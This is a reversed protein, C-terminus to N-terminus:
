PAKEVFSVSTPMPPRRSCTWRRTRPSGDPDRAFVLSPIEALEKEARLEQVVDRVGESRVDLLIARPRLARALRSLQVLARTM